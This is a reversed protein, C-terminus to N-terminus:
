NPRVDPRRAVDGLFPMPVPPTLENGGDDEEGDDDRPVSAGNKEECWVLLLDAARCFVLLPWLLAPWMRRYWPATGSFARWVYWLMAVQAYFLGLLTCAVWSLVTM